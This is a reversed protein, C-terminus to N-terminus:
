HLPHCSPETSFTNTMLDSSCLDTIVTSPSAVGSLQERVEACAGECIARGGHRMLMCIYVYLSLSFYRFFFSNLSISAATKYVNKFNWVM